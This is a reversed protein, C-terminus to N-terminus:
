TLGGSTKAMYSYFTAELKSNMMEEDTNGLWDAQVAQLPVGHEAQQCMMLKEHSVRIGMLGAKAEQMRPMTGLGQMLALQIGM